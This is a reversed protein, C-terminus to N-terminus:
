RRPASRRATGCRASGQARYKRQSFGTTEGAPNRSGTGIIAETHGITEAKVPNVPYMEAADMFDIGAAGAREIQAHATEADTQSGFTMTGLCFETVEIGSRGLKNKKM